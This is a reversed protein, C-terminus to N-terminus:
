EDKIFYADPHSRKYDENVELCICYEIHNMDDAILDCLDCLECLDCPTKGLEYEANIKNVGWEGLKYGHYNLKNM